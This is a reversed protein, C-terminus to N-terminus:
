NCKDHKKYERLTNVFLFGLLKFRGHQGIRMMSLATGTSIILKTTLKRNVGVGPKMTTLAAQIKISKAKYRTLTNILM